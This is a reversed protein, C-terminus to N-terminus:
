GKRRIWYLWRSTGEVHQSRVIEFHRRCSAEFVEATLDRHLEERGRTLRRFMSDEPAVFEILLFRTTLEAALDIVDNLPVRETVLMHHIVALMFVTDFAGRARELFSPWERNQWGVGPTPRTLNVVLPLVDLKEERAKRWLGGLVAPDYDLSVVRAGSRAALLSFHGTNCGVDLVSRPSHEALLQQTFRDKSAFHDATYNNTEM